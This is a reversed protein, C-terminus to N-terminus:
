SITEETKAELKGPNMLGFPDFQQKASLFEPTLAKKNGLGMKYTHPNAVAVGLSTAYAHIEATRREDRYRLLPMSVCTIRGELDRVFELHLMLEPHLARHLERIQELHRGPTFRM